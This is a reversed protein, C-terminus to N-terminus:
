GKCSVTAAHRNEAVVQPPQVAGLFRTAYAPMGCIVTAYYGEIEVTLPGTVSQVKGARVKRVIGPPIVAKLFDDRNSFYVGDIAGDLNWRPLLGASAADPVFYLDPEKSGNAEEEAPTNRGFVYTGSIVARGRLTLGEVSAKEVSFPSRKPLAYVLGDAQNTILRVTTGGAQGMGPFAFALIFAAVLVPRMVM